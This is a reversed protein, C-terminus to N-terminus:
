CFINKIFNQLIFFYKFNNVIKSKKNLNKKRNIRFHPKTKILLLLKLNIEFFELAKFVSVSAPIARPRSM